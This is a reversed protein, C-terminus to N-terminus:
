LMKISTGRNNEIRRLNPTIELLLDRVAEKTLRYRMVFNEACLYAMPNARDLPIMRPVRLMGIENVAQQEVDEYLQILNAIAEQFIIIHDRPSM